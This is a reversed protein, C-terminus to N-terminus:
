SPVTKSELKVLPDAGNLKARPPCLTMLHQSSSTASILTPELYVIAQGGSFAYPELPAPSTIGGFAVSEKSISSRPQPLLFTM